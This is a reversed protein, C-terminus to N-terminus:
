MLVAVGNKGLAEETQPDLNQGKIFRGQKIQNTEEDYVGQFVCKKAGDNAFIGGVKVITAEDLMPKIVDGRICVPVDKGQILSLKKFYGVIDDIFSIIGDIVDIVFDVLCEIAGFILDIVADFM